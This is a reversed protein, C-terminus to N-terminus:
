TTREGEIIQRATAISPAVMRAARALQQLKADVAVRPDALTEILGRMFSLVYWRDHRGNARQLYIRGVKIRRKTRKKWARRKV